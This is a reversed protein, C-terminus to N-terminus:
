VLTWITVLSLHPEHTARLLPEFVAGDIV